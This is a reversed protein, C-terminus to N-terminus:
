LLLQSNVEYKIEPSFNYSHSIEITIIEMSVLKCSSILVKVEKNRVLTESSFSFFWEYAYFVQVCSEM